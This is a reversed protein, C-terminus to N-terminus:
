KMRFLLRNTLTWPQARDVRAPMSLVSAPDEDQNFEVVSVQCGKRSLKGALEDAEKRADGDLAVVYQDFAARVLMSVQVLTVDKGYTAVANYGAAIASIVGETIICVSYKSAGALNYIKDRANSKPPNKYKVKHGKYTRAVWYVVNGDDDYDPFIIRGSGAYKQREAPELDRLDDVGFGINYFTIQEDSINREKLYGYAETGRIMSMYDLPLKVPCPEPISPRGGRLKDVFERWKGVSERSQQGFLKHMPGRAKCRQCYFWGRIGDIYRSPNVYLHFKTDARGTRSLCFPCCFNLEGTSTRRYSGLRQLSYLLRLRM